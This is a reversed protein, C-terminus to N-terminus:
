VSTEVAGCIFLRGHLPIEATVCTGAGPASELALQGGLLVTREHMSALGIAAGTALAAAPDFGAGYDKIMAGLTAHHAWIHVTAEKVGAHRAVNTLAEQVIRYGATEVEPAFRRGELGTHKFIVRVQTQTASREFLWLLAPLLGLDDLLAPRLDLSLADVRAMLDHLLAQAEDVPARTLEAPSRTSMELTLKLATLTQGIEDHLERAIHRREAEQVDVLRRSLVQLRERSARVQEFLEAQQEEARRRETIENELEGNAAQLQATREVVRQEIQANLRRIEEEARKRRAIEEQAEFYLRANDIALAARGTLEMALALDSAGYIRGSDATAFTLTGRVQGRAILPVIIYSRPNLARCIRAIAPDDVTTDGMISSLPDFVEPIHLPEGTRLVQGLGSRASDLDPCYRRALEGLLLEKRSDVHAAAVQHYQGDPEHIALVCYDATRPVLLRVVNALTTEYDLSAAFLASAEALFRQAEEARKREGIDRAVVLMGTIKGWKDRVLGCSLSTPTARGAVSRVEVDLNPLMGTPARALLQWPTAPIEATACIESLPRGLIDPASRGLLAGAAQNTRIVRGTHDMLFLGESMSEIVRDFLDRAEDIESARCELEFQTHTLEAYAAQLNAFMDPWAAATPDDVRQRDLATM